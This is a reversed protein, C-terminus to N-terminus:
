VKFRNLQASIKQSVDNLLKSSNSVEEASSNMEEASASIEESSASTEEAVASAAEVRKIIDEKKEDIQKTAGNIQEIQPIIEEMSSVIDRFSTISGEIISSQDKLETTVADTTTIVDNAESTIESIIRNINESSVKSQEALKRIEDAVVSFGRGAEGARAAEIAANLALLNTQDAISKIASTIQQIQNINSGLKGIKASVGEFSQEINKISDVLAKLESNSNAAKSSILKSNGYVNVVLKSIKDLDNGFDQIIGSINVLDAAQETAGNAVEGIAGSVEYSTKSLELSVKSLTGSQEELQTTNAQIGKIMGSVKLLM